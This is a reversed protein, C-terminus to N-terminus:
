NSIINNLYKESISIREIKHTDNGVETAFHCILYKNLHSLKNIGDQPMINMCWKNLDINNIIKNTYGLKNVIPQDYSYLPKKYKNHFKKIAEYINKLYSCILPNNNFLIVATTFTKKNNKLIKFDDDSFLQCHSQRHSEEFMTYLNDVLDFNFLPELNGLILIDCDLYLIKEFNNLKPYQYIMYRSYTSEYINDINSEYNCIDIVWIDFQLGIKTCIELVKKELAKNTVILYVLDSSKNHKYFSSLLKEMIILYKENYFVCSYVLNM